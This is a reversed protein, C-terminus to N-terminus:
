HRYEILRLPTHDVRIRARHQPQKPNTYSREHQHDQQEASHGAHIGPVDSHERQKPAHRAFHQGLPHM